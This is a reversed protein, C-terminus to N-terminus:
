FRLGRVRGGAAEVRLRGVPGDVIEFEDAGVPRLLRRASTDLRLTDGSREVSWPARTASDRYIGPLARLQAASAALGGAPERSPAAPSAVTSAEPELVSALHVDAVRLALASPDATAVNCLAAVAFRQDPFRLLEARYGGWSGGHSVTR